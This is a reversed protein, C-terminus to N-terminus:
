VDRLPVMYGHTKPKQLQQLTIVAQLRLVQFNQQTDIKRKKPFRGRITFNALNQELLKCPSVSRRRRTSINYFKDSPFDAFSHMIQM